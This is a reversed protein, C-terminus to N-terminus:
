SEIKIEELYTFVEKNVKIIRDFNEQNLIAHHVVFINIKNDAAFAKLLRLIDDVGELDISSFVEDLFLINIFKKTRILTIYAILIILNIRKTEGTSLTEHDVVEGLHRIEATFTEDIVIDFKLFMKKSYEKIFHNIPKIMGAIISKKVGEEGFIKNLEKYFIDKERASAFKDNSVEKKDELEEITKTFEEVNYNSKGADNQKQELKEIKQKCSKLYYVIDNYAENADESIDRLKKQKEKLSKINNELEDKINTLSDKKEKLTERLDLFYQSEFSTACTPCKGSDYLDLDKSVNRLDNQISSYQSKEQDVEQELELSKSKIKEIKEKLKTFEEKKSDMDQKITEIEQSINEKEKQIAKEISTKIKDISEQLTNMESELSSKRLNNSKVLEKLISNLINIVELNFLKDLLLQKEENSLSIFNKFDNISLSIFSKFTEVDMGVYGEIKEDINAKGAKENLVGNEWLELLNPGIGRKVEVEIGSSTKFKITNLLEKNIRNPLTSLKHWKKSKGSKVKGYLCYEFSEILSSNHSTIGNSYYENGEVEIDWLDEKEKICDIILVEQTGLITNVSDGTKINKLRIWSDKYKVRHDPSGILTFDKTQIKIKESNPSTVGIAKVKKYGSETNVFVEHRDLISIKEQLIKLKELTIVHRRETNNEIVELLCKLDYENFNEIDIDIEIETSLVVSKGNGNSGVILILEGEERNLKITQIQNGFSKFGKISLEEILM